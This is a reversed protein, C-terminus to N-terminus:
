KLVNAKKWKIIQTKAWRDHSAYLGLWNYVSGKGTFTYRGRELMEDEPMADVMEMFQQHTKHFYDLVDEMTQDKHRDYIRQNFESFQKWNLGPEIEDVPEGLRAKSIWTPMHSEWDALHALVDKISWEGVVGPSTMHERSLAALNQVLRRRETQLNIIMQNKTKPKSM